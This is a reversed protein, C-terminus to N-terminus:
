NKALTIMDGALHTSYFLLFLLLLETRLVYINFGQQDNKFNYPYKLAFFFGAKPSTKQVSTLKKCADAFRGGLPYKMFTISPM